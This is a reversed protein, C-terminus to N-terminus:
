KKRRKQKQEEKKREKEQYNNLLREVYDIADMLIAPQELYGGSFPLVGQKRQGVLQLLIQIDNNYFQCPCTYFVFDDTRFLVHESRSGDCHRQKQVIEKAKEYPHHKTLREINEKCANNQEIHSYFTAEM